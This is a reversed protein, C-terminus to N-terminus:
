YRKFKINKITNRSKKGFNKFSLWSKNYIIIEDNPYIINIYLKLTFSYILCFIYLILIISFVLIDRNVIRSFIFLLPIEFFYINSKIVEVIDQGIIIIKQKKLLYKDKDKFIKLLKCQNHYIMLYFSTFIIDFCFYLLIYNILLGFSINVPIFFFITIYIIKM